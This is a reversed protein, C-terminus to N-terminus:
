LSDIFRPTFLAYPPRLSTTLASKHPHHLFITRAEARIDAKAVILSDRLHPVRTRHSTKYNFPELPTPSTFREPDKPESLIVALVFALAFASKRSSHCFVHLPLHM